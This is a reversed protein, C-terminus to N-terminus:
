EAPILRGGIEYAPAPDRRIAGAVRPERDAAATSEISLIRRALQPILIARAEPTHFGGNIQCTALLYNRYHEVFEPDPGVPDQWFEALTGQFTLGEVDYVAKGMCKVPSGGMVGQLGGTSNITVMCDSLRMLEAIGTKRMYVARGELGLEKSLRAFEESLNEIGYDLPHQKVVLFADSPASAAFSRVVENLFRLNSGFPSHYRIQGDGPKQMLTLFIRGKSQEKHEVVRALLKSEDHLVRWAYEGVYGIMQRAVSHGYYRPNYPLVPKLLSSWAFHRITNVVHPRMNVSFERCKRGPREASRIVEPDRSLESNGNVGNDALTIHHPRLYGNELVLRSVNLRKAIALAIRNRPLTDNYTVITDIGRECLVQRIFRGWNVSRDLRIRNRAPTEMHDGGDLIVRYVEAGGNELSM